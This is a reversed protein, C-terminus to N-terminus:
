CSSAKHLSQESERRDRDHEPTAACLRLVGVSGDLDAHHVVHRPGIGIEASLAGHDRRAHRDLIEASGGFAHLDLDDARVMLVLRVDTRVHHPGPDVDVLDVHDDVHRRGRDREGHVLDHAVLILYKEDGARRGRIEGTRFAGGVRDVPGVVGPREGVPGSFRDHLGAAIRPEEEGGIIREAVGELAVGSGHDFLVAALDEALNAM